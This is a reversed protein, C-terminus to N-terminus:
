RELPFLTSPPWCEAPSKAIIRHSIIAYVPIMTLPLGFILAMALGLPGEDRTGLVVAALVVGVVTVPLLLSVAVVFIAGNFYPSRRDWYEVYHYEPIEALRAFDGGCQEQIRPRVWIRVKDRVASITGVIGVISTMVIAVCMTLLEAEIQEMKMQQGFQRELLGLIVVIILAWITARCFATASYFWFCAWARPRLPDVHLLWWGCRLSRSGAHAAVIAAALLASGTLAHAAIAVALVIFFTFLHSYGSVAARGEIPEGANELQHTM